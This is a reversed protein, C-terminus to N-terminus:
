RLLFVAESIYDHISEAIVPERHPFLQRWVKQAHEIDDEFDVDDRRWLEFGVFVDQEAFFGFLRYKAPKQIRIEWVDKRKTKLRKLDANPTPKFTASVEGGTVFNELDSRVTALEYADREDWPQTICRSVEPLLFLPRLTARGDIPTFEVLKGAVVHRGIDDSISM